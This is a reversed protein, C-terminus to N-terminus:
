AVVTANEWKLTSALTNWLELGSVQNWAQQIASLGYDSLNMTLAAQKRSINWTWGEVFGAFPQDSLSAPLDGISVPMGVTVGILADRLANPLDPNDLPITVASLNLRPITRTGMFLDLQQQAAVGSQLLTSRQSAFLGYTLQSDIDQDTVSANGKYTITMQNILDSSTVTTSIGM